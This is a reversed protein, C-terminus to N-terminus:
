QHTIAKSLVCDTSWPISQMYQIIVQKLNGLITATDCTYSWTRNELHVTATTFLGRGFPNDLNDLTAGQNDLDLGMVLLYAATTKIGTVTGSLVIADGIHARNELTNLTLTAAGAASVLAYLFFQLM